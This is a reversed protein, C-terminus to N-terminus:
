GIPGLLIFIAGLVGFQQGLFASLSFIRSQQALIGVCLAGLTAAPVGEPPALIVGVRREPRFHSVTADFYM